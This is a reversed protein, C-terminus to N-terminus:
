NVATYVIRVDGSNPNCFSAATTYAEHVSSGAPVIYGNRELDQGNAFFELLVEASRTGSNTLPYTFRLTGYSQSECSVGKVSVGSVTVHVAAQDSIAVIAIGTSVVLVASGVVGALFWNGYRESRRLHGPYKPYSVKDM